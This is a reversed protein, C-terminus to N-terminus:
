GENSIGSIVLESALDHKLKPTGSVVFNARDWPRQDTLFPLEQAMWEDWFASAAADGGDRAVGRVKAKDVDSQVWVIADLAHTLERRASGVGELLLLPCGPKVEIAGEGRSWDKWSEPRYRVARGARAPELVHELLRRTWDFFSRAGPVSHADTGSWNGSSPLDDTHVVASGPVAQSLLTALTTKGGASRGDIAVIGPGESTLLSKHLSKAFAEASVVRWPGFDPEEPPLRM